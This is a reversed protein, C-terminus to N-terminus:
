TPAGMSGGYPRAADGLSQASQAACVAGFMDGSQTSVDDVRQTEYWGTTLEVADAATVAMVASAASPAYEEFKRKAGSM